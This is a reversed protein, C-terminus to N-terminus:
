EIMYNNNIINKKLIIDLIIKIFNKREKNKQEEQESNLKIDKVELTPQKGLPRFKVRIKEFM